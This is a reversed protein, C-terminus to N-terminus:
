KSGWYIKSKIQKIPLGTYISNENELIGSIISGAAIIVNDAIKTGKLITVKSSIWVHKGIEIKLDKNIVNGNEDFIDHFDTDMIQTNWSVITNDGIIISKKSVLHCEGTFIINNGLILKSDKDVTCIQCGGGFQVKGNCYITGFHEIVTIKYFATGSGGIGFKILGFKIPTNFVIKGKLAKIKVYRSVIIPLKIAQMFPLLKFNIYVIMPLSLLYEWKSM